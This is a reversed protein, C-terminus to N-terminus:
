QRSARRPVTCGVAGMSAPCPCGRPRAVLAASNCLNYTGHPAILAM